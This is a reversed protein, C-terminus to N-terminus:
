YNNFAKDFAEIETDKEEPKESGGNLNTPTGAGQSKFYEGM